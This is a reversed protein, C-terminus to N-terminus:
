ISRENMNNSASSLRLDGFGTSAILSCCFYTQEPRLKVTEQVSGRPCRGKEEAFRVEVSRTDNSRAAFM